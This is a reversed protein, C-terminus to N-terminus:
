SLKVIIKVQFKCGEIKVFIKFVALYGVPLHTERRWLGGRKLGRMPTPLYSTKDLDIASPHM